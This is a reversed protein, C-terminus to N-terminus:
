IWKQENEYKDVWINNHLLDWGNAIIFNGYVVIPQDQIWPKKHENVKSELHEKIQPAQM